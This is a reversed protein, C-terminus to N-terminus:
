ESAAALTALERRQRRGQRWRGVWRLLAWGALLTAAQYVLWGGTLTLSFLPAPTASAIALLVSVWATLWLLERTGFQLWPRRTATPDQLEDGSATELPQLEGDGRPSPVKALTQVRRGGWAGGFQGLVTTLGPGLALAFLMERLDDFFPDTLAVLLPPLVALGGVLGGLVAGLWVYSPRLRLSWLFLHFILTTPLSVLLSWVLGITGSCIVFLFAFSVGAVLEHALPLSGHNVLVDFVTSVVAFILGILGLVLPYSGGALMIGFIIM